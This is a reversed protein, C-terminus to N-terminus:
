RVNGVVSSARQLIARTAAANGDAPLSESNIAVVRDGVKLRGDQSLQSGAEISKIVYETAGDGGVTPEIMLGVFPTLRVSLRFMALTISVASVIGKTFLMCHDISDIAFFRRGLGNCFHNRITNNILPWQESSSGFTCLYQM